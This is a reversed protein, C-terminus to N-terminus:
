EDSQRGGRATRRRRSENRLLGTNVLLRQYRRTAFVELVDKADGQLMGTPFRCVRGLADGVAELTLKPHVQTQRRFGPKFDGESAPRKTTLSLVRNKLTWEGPNPEVTTLFLTGLDGRPPLLRARLERGIEYVDYLNHDNTSWSSTEVMEWMITKRPLKHRDKKIAYAFRRYEALVVRRAWCFPCVYTLSCVRYRPTSWCFAPPCNLVYSQRRDLVDGPRWGRHYLCLFAQIRREALQRVRELIEDEGGAPGTLPYLVADRMCKAVPTNIVDGLVAALEPTPESM